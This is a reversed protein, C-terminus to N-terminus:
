TLDAAGREAEITLYLPRPGERLVSRVNYNEGLWVIRMREDVDSRNRITFQYMSAANMRDDSMSESGSKPEVRAWVVPTSTLNGWAATFGGAADATRTPSQLTVRQDLRGIM